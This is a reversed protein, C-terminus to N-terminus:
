IEEKIILKDYFMNSKSYVIYGKDFVMDFNIIHKIDDYMGDTCYLSPMMTDECSKLYHWPDLLLITANNEEFFPNMEIMENVMDETVKIVESRLEPNDRVTTGATFWNHARVTEIIPVYDVLIIPKVGEEVRDLVMNKVLEGTNRATAMFDARILDHETYEPLEVIYFNDEGVHDVINDDIWDELKERSDDWYSLLTLGKSELIFDRFKKM